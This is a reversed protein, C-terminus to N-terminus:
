FGITCVRASRPACAAINSVAISAWTESTPSRRLDTDAGTRRTWKVVLSRRTKGPRSRRGAADARSGARRFGAASVDPDVIQQGRVRLLGLAETDRITIRSLGRLVVARRPTLLRIAQVSRRWRMLRGGYVPVGEVEGLHQQGL